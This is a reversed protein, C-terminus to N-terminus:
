EEGLVTLDFSVMDTEVGIGPITTSASCSFSGTDQDQAAFLTLTRTVTYVGDADVMPSVVEEGVQVRDATTDGIGSEGDTRTLPDSGRQFSLSPAPFGSARCTFTINTQENTTFQQSDTPMSIDPSATLSSYHNLHSTLHKRNSEGYISVSSASSTTPGVTNSARCSYNATDLVVTSSIMFVSEVMSMMANPTSSVTFNRGDVETSGMSFETESGNSLTRVWSISPLPFGDATCNLSLSAPRLRQVTSEPDVTVNPPVALILTFPLMYAHPM